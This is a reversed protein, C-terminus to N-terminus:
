ITIRTVIGLNSQSFIGDLSPGVGWKGQGTGFSVNYQVPIGFEATIDDLEQLRAANFGNSYKKM